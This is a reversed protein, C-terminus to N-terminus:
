ELVEFGSAWHPRGTRRRCIQMAFSNKETQGSGASTERLHGSGASTERLCQGFVWLTCVIWCKLMVNRKSTCLFEFLFLVGGWKSWCCCAYWSSYCGTERRCTYEPYPNWEKIGTRNRKKESNRRFKGFQALNHWIKGLIQKIQTRCALGVLFLWDGLGHRWVNSCCSASALLTVTLIRTWEWTARWPFIERTKKRLVLSFLTTISEKHLRLRQPKGMPRRYTVAMTVPVPWQRWNFISNKKGIRVHRTRGEETRPRKTKPQITLARCDRQDSM